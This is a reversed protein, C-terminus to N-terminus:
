SAVVLMLLPTELLGALVPAVLSLRGVVQRRIQASALTTILRGSAYAGREVPRTREMAPVAV